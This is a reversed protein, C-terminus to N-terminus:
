LGSIFTIFALSSETVHEFSGSKLRWERKANPSTMSFVITNQPPSGLKKLSHALYSLLVLEQISKAVNFVPRTPASATVNFSLIHIVPSNKLFFGFMHVTWCIQTIKVKYPAITYLM